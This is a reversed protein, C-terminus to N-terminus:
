APAYTITDTRYQTGKATTIVCYVKDGATGTYQAATVGKATNPLSNAADEYWAYSVPTESADSLTALGANTATARVVSGIMTVKAPTSTDSSSSALDFRLDLTWEKDLEVFKSSYCDDDEGELWLRFTLKICDDAGGAISKTWGTSPNVTVDDKSSVSDVATDGTGFYSYGSPAFIVDANAGRAEYAAGGSALDQEFVAVRYANDDIVAGDYLLNLGTLRLEKAASSDSNLAKIEVVYDVYGKYDVTNITITNNTLANYNINTALSAKSGDANADYTYFFGADAANVTSVPQLKAQVVQNIGTTFNDDTEKSTGATSSAILLSDGVKTKVEMGTVTVEKNMTFWAYTSTALMVASVMLSGAAPILKKAPNGKKKTNTKM